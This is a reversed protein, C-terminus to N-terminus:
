KDKTLEYMSGKILDKLLSIKQKSLAIMERTNEALRNVKDFEEPTLLYVHKPKKDWGFSNNRSLPKTFEVLGFDPSNEDSNFYYPKVGYNKYRILDLSTINMDLVHRTELPKLENHQKMIDEKESEAIIIRKM